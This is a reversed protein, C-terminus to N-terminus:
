IFELQDAASREVVHRTICRSAFAFPNMQQQMITVDILDLAEDDHRLRARIDARM